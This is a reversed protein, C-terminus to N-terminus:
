EMERELDNGQNGLERVAAHVLFHDRFVGFHPSRGYQELLPLQEEFRRQVEEQSLGGSVEYDYAISALDREPREFVQTIGFQEPQRMIDSGAVLVFRSKSLADISERHQELFRLTADWEAETETPFGFLLFVLNWIGAHHASDLIRGAWELRIGKKMADLVRQSGSEVGWMVLRLGSRHLQDMLSMDFSGTPKAYASWFLKAGEGLLARSLRALRHPHIMEDVLNFHVVGHRTRLEHLRSVTQEVSEERYALYTKQHTCFTCRGWFCGRSSLYPLIPVPSLYDEVPLDRFDPLPLVNLDAVMRPPNKSVQGDKRYVLGPVESLDGDLQDRLALLGTEGEGVMLFDLCTESHLRHRDSGIRFPVTNQLLREVHPMVSLTAGGFVVRTGKEKLVRAMTLAFFLQQSFLLSFGALRPALEMVPELLEKFFSEALNPVPLGALIRRCFHDFLGHLVGTYREYFEAAENYREMDLFPAMGENGQLYRCVETIKGAAAEPEMGSIKMRLRGNRIWSLAKQHFRLNLDLTPIHQSPCMSELFAKLGAIGLPPSTPHMAPPFILVLQSALGPTDEAGKENVIRKGRNTERM